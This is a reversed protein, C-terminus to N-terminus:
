IALLGTRQTQEAGATGGWRTSSGLLEFLLAVAPHVMGVTRRAPSKEGGRPTMEARDGRSYNSTVADRSARHAISADHVLLRDPTCGHQSQTPLDAPPKCRPLLAHTPECPNLGYLVGVGAVAHVSRALRRGIRRMGRSSVSTSSAVAAVAHRAM